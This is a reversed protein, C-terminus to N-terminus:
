EIEEGLGECIAPVMTLHKKERWDELEDEVLEDLAKEMEPGM